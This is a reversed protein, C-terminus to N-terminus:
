LLVLFKEEDFVVMFLISFVWLTLISAVCTYKVFFEQRSYICLEEGFSRIPMGQLNQLDPELGGCYLRDLWPGNRPSLFLFVSTTLSCRSFNLSRGIPYLTSSDPINLNKSLNM